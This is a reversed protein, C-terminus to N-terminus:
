NMSLCITRTAHTSINTKGVSRRFRDEQDSGCEERSTCSMSQVILSLVAYRGPPPYKNSRKGWWLHSIMKRVRYACRSIEPDSFKLDNKRIYAKLQAEFCRQRILLGALAAVLDSLFARWVFMSAWDPTSAMKREYRFLKDPSAFAVPVHKELLQQAVENDLNTREARKMTSM